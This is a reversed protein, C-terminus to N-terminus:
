RPRARILVLSSVIGMAVDNESAGLYRATATLLLAEYTPHRSLTRWVCIVARGDSAPVRRTEKVAAARDSFFQLGQQCLVLDFIGSTLDLHVADGQRM